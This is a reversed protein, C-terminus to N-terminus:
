IGSILAPTIFSLAAVLIFPLAERYARPFGTTVFRFLRNLALPESRYIVAHAQAVLQNLYLTVRHNPFDRQALALDSTAARYLRGLLQIEESSLRSLDNRSRELLRTLTKWDDQRSQYFQDAQM